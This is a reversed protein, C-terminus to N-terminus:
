DLFTNNLRALLESFTQIEEDSWGNLLRRYLNARRAKEDRLTERGKSTIELSAARHDHVDPVRQVWGKKELASAQRSVTSVDLHFALALEKVGLAGREELHRLLLYASRDVGGHKQASLIARRLFIAIQYEVAAILSPREM